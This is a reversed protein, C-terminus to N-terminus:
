RLTLRLIWNQFFSSSISQFYTLFSLIDFRENKGWFVIQAKQGQERIKVKEREKEGEEEEEKGKGGRRRERGEERERGGGGGGLKKPYRM